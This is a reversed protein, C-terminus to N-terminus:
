NLVLIEIRRNKERNEKTENDVRNMTEGFGIYTLRDEKVGNSILYDYVKGARKESLLLNDKAKGLDDTFGQIDILADPCAKLILALNDLEKYSNKTFEDKGSVFKVNELVVRSNRKLMYIDLLVTDKDMPVNLTWDFYGETCASINIHKFKVKNEFYGEDNVERIDESGPISVSLIIPEDTIFDKIHGKIVAPECARPMDFYVVINEEPLIEIERTMTECQEALAKVTYKGAPLEFKMNGDAVFLPEHKPEIFEILGDMLEENDDDSIINITISGTKVKKSKFIGSLNSFICSNSSEACLHITLSILICVIIAKSSFINRMREGKRIVQNNSIEELVKRKRGQM